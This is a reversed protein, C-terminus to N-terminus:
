TVYARDVSRQSRTKYGVFALKAGSLFTAKKVTGGIHVYVVRLPLDSGTRKLVVTILPRRDRGAPM